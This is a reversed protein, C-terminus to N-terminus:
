MLEFNLLLNLTHQLDPRGIARRAFTGTCLNLHIIILTAAGGDMSLIPDLQLAWFKPTTRMIDAATLGLHGVRTQSIFQRHLYNPCVM